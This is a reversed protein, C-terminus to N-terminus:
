GIIVISYTASQDGVPYFTKMYIFKILVVHERKKMVVYSDKNNTVTLSCDAM